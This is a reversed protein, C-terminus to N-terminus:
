ILNMEDIIGSLKKNKIILIKQIRKKKFIELVNKRTYNTGVYYFNKNM